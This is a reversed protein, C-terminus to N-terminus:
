VDVYWICTNQVTNDLDYKESSSLEILSHLILFHDVSKM